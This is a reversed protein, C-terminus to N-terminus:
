PLPQRELALLPGQLLAPLEGQHQVLESEQSAKKGEAAGHLAKWLFSRGDNVPGM